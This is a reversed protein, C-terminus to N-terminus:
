CHLHRYNMALDRYYKSFGILSVTAASAFGSFMNVYHTKQKDRKQNHRMRAIQHAVNEKLFDKDIDFTIEAM